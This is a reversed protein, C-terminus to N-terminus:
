VRLQPADRIKECLVEEVKAIGEDHPEDIGDAAQHHVWFAEQISAFM